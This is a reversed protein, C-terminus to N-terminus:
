SYQQGNKVPKGQTPDTPFYDVCSVNVTPLGCPGFNIVVRRWGRLSPGIEEGLLSISYLNMQASALIFSLM